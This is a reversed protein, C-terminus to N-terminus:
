LLSNSLKELSIVMATLEGRGTAASRFGTLPTSIPKASAPMLFGFRLSTRIMFSASPAVTEPTNVRFRKQAAGTCTLLALRSATLFPPAGIRASTTLVPLALAPVPSCPRALALAVQASTALNSPRSAPWTSGNEVPTIRSCSGIGLSSAPRGAAAVLRFASLQNLAASAIMVVSVWGFAAERVTVMPPWATVIVPMLLPAPMILGFIAVM